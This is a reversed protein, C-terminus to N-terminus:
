IKIMQPEHGVRKEPPPPTMYDGFVKTLYEHTASPVRLTLNEFPMSCGHGFYERPFIAKRYRVIGFLHGIRETPRDNYKRVENIFFSRLPRSDLLLSVKMAIRKKLSSSKYGRKTLSYAILIRSCFYQWASRIRGDAINDLCFVDIFLGEHAGKIVNPERFVTGNLRIKTYYMPWFESQEKQLFFKKTDLENECLTIFRSYNKWTMGIDLDDDWPIFGKHRVAGLASGCILFYRISHKQCIGDIHEMIELLRLQVKKTVDHKNEGLSRVGRINFNPLNNLEEM